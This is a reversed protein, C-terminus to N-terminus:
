HRGLPRVGRLTRCRLPEQAEWVQRGGGGRATDQRVEVSHGVQRGQRGGGNTCAVGDLKLAQRRVLGGGVAGRQQGCLAQRAAARVACAGAAAAAVVAATAPIGVQVAVAM